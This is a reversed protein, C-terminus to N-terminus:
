EVLELVASLVTEAVFSSGMAKLVSKIQKLIKKHSILAVVAICSSSKFHDSVMEMVRDAVAISDSFHQHVTGLSMYLDTELREQCVRNLKKVFRELDQARQQLIECNHQITENREMTLESLDVKVHDMRLEMKFFKSLNNIARFTKSLAVYIKEGLILSKQRRMPDGPYLIDCVDAAM